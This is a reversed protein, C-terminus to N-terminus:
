RADCQAAEGTNPDAPTFNICGGKWKFLAEHILRKWRFAFVRYIDAFVYVSGYLYKLYGSYKLKPQNGNFYIWANLKANADLLDVRGGVGGRVLLLKAYGEAFGALTAEPSMTAQITSFELPYSLSPSVKGSVDALYQIGADVQVMLPGVPFSVVPVRVEGPPIGAEFVYSGGEFRGKASWVRKGAVYLDSDLESEPDSPIGQVIQLIERSHGLIKGLTKANLETQEENTGLQHRFGADRGLIKEVKEVQSQSQTQAYSSSYFAGGLTTLLIVRSLLVGYNGNLFKM